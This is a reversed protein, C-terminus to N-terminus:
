GQEHSLGGEEDTLLKHLRGRARSLRSKVTGAPLRLMKAIEEVRYGEMYHLVLPLRLRDELCAIADHLAADAEPPAAPEPLKDMDVARGRHKLLRYCENILIRTVWSKMYAECRLDEQRAWARIICEQVADACDNQNLLLAYSVRYLSPQMEIIAQGFAERTM